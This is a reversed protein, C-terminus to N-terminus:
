TLNRKRRKLQRSTELAKKIVKKRSEISPPSKEILKLLKM